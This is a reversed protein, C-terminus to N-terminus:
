GKRGARIISDIAEDLHQAVSGKMHNALPRVSKLEFVKNGFNDTDGSIHNRLCQYREADGVLSEKMGSTAPPTALLAIIEASVGTNDRNANFNAEHKGFLTELQEFLADAAGRDTTSSQTTM